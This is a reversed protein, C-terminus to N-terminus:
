IENLKLLFQQNLKLKKQFLLRNISTNLGVCDLLIAEGPINYDPDLKARSTAINGL